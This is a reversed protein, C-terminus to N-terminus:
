AGVWGRGLGDPTFSQFCSRGPVQRHRRLNHPNGDALVQRISRRPNRSVRGGPGSILSISHKFGVAFVYFLAGGQTDYGLRQVGLLGCAQDLQQFVRRGAFLLEKEVQDGIANRRAHVFCGVDLSAEQGGDGLAFGSGRQDVFGAGDLQQAGHLAAVVDGGQDLQQIVGFQGGGGGFLELVGQQHEVGEM